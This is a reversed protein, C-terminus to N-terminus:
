ELDVPRPPQRPMRFDEDDGVDPMAMLLEKFTLADYESSLLASELLRRHKEEISVGDRTAIAALRELLAPPPDHLILDPM